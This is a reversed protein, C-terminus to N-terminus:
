RRQKDSKSKSLRRRLAALPARRAVSRRLDFVLYIEEDFNPHISQYEALTLDQLSKEKQLALKVAQGTLQHAERFPIGRGVLYDAVETALM